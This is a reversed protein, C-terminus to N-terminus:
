SVGRASTTSECAEERGTIYPLARYSTHVERAWNANSMSPWRDKDFRPTQELQEKSVDLVFGGSEPDSTLARWPIPFLQPGHNSLVAYAIQGGPVDIVIKDVTGLREGAANVVTGGKRAAAALVPGASEADSGYDLTASIGVQHPPDSNDPIEHSM